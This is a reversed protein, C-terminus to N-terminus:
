FKFNLYFLDYPDDPDPLKDLNRNNDDEDDMQEQGGVGENGGFAQNGSRQSQMFQRMMKEVDDQRKTM